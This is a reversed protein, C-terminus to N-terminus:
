FYKDIDDQLCFKYIIKMSVMITRSLNGGVRILMLEWNWFGCGELVCGGEVM